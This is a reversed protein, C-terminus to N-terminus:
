NNYKKFFSEIRYAFINVWPPLQRSQWGKATGHLTQLPHPLLPTPSPFSCLIELDSCRPKRRCRLRGDFGSAALPAASLLIEESQRGLLKFLVMVWLDVRWDEVRRGVVDWKRKRGFDKAHAPQSPAPPKQTIPKKQPPPPEVYPSCMVGCRNAPGGGQEYLKDVAPLGYRTSRIPKLLLKVFPLRLAFGYLRIGLTWIRVILALWGNEAFTKGDWFGLTQAPLIQELTRLM